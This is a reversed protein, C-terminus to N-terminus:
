KENNCRGSEMYWRAFRKAQWETFNRVVHTKKWETVADLEDPTGSFTPIHIRIMTNEREERGRLMKLLSHFVNEVLYVYNGRYWDGINKQEMWSVVYNSNIFDVPCFEDNYLKLNVNNVRSPLNGYADMRQWDEVHRKASVYFTYKPECVVNPNTTDPAGYIRKRYYIPEGGTEEATKYPKGERDLEYWEDQKEIFSITNLGPKIDEADRARNEYGRSRHEEQKWTYDYHSAAAREVILITDGIRVDGEKGLDRWQSFYTKFDPYKNSTLQADASSFIVKDSPVRLNVDKLETFINTSQVLGEIIYFLMMRDIAKKVVPDRLKTKGPEIIDNKYDYEGKWDPKIKREAEAWTAASEFLNDEVFVEEDIFSLWINEGNRIIMGVQNEHYYELAKLGDIESDYAFYKKDKSTRFFTICKESPAFVDLVCQKKFIETTTGHNGDFRGFEKVALLAFEEDLFKFKQYLVLPSNSTKGRRLQTLTFTEGFLSRLAFINLELMFISDKMKDVRQRLEALQLEQKEKLEQMKREMEKRALEYKEKAEAEARELEKQMEAHKSRVECMHVTTPLGLASETNALVLGGGEVDVPNGGSLMASIDGVTFDDYNNVREVDVFEKPIALYRTAAYKLVYFRGTEVVIELKGGLEEYHAMARKVAAIKKPLWEEYDKKPDSGYGGFQKTLLEDFDGFDCTWRSARSNYHQHAKSIASLCDDDIGAKYGREQTKPYYYYESRDEISLLHAQLEDFRIGNIYGIKDLM